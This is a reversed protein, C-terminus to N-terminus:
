EGLLPTVIGWLLVMVSGLTYILLYVVVGVAIPIINDINSRVCKNDLRAQSIKNYIFFATFVMAAGLLM